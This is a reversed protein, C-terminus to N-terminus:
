GGFASFRFFYSALLFVQCELPISFKNPDPSSNPSKPTLGPIQCEHQGQMKM